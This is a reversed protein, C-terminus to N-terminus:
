QIRQRHLILSQWDFLQNFSFTSINGNGDVAPLDGPEISELAKSRDVVFFGRHAPSSALKGGIRVVSKGAGIDVEKAEFYDIQIFVFFM